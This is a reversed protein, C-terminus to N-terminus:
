GRGQCRTASRRRSRRKRTVQAGGMSAALAADVSEVAGGNVNRMARPDNPITFEVRQM